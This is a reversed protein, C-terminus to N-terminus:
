GTRTLGNARAGLSAVVSDTGMVSQAYITRLRAPIANGALAVPLDVLRIPPGLDVYTPVYEARNVRWKGDTGQTFTFRALLGSTNGSTPQDHRAILNGMGYVVWKGHLVQFPQTVHAHCGIILDISPDALLRDALAQQQPTPAHQNETGWHLSLIVVDAGAQKAQQAAAIIADPDIQNALWPQDAPVSTGNFGYSYSLQAVRVGKVVIIDPSAAEAASRASGTHKLGVTDMGQLTRTVGAAGKDLTHNSSTSCTDYGTDALAGLIQPPVSFTPYYSYPGGTPAIPTEMHCIALDAGSVVPKVAALMPRFDYPVAGSLQADAAAQQAIPGHVLVDGSAVVTFSPAGAAPQGAQGGAGPASSRPTADALHPRVGSCAASLLAASLLLAAARIRGVPM